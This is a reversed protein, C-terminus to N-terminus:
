SQNRTRNVAPNARPHMLRRYRDIERRAKRLQREPVAKRMRAAAFADLAHLFRVYVSQLKPAMTEVFPAAQLFMATM